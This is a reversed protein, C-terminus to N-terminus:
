ILFNFLLYIFGRFNSIPLKTFTLQCTIVYFKVWLHFKDLNLPFKDEMNIVAKICIAMTSVLTKASQFCYNCKVTTFCLHFVRMVIFGM